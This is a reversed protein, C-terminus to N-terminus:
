VCGILRVDQHRWPLGTRPDTESRPDGVFAVEYGGWLTLLASYLVPMLADLDGEDNAWATVRWREMTAIIDGGGNQFPPGGVLKLHVFPISSQIDDPLKTFVRGGIVADLPVDAKLAAVIDTLTSM